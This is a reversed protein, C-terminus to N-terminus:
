DEKKGSKTEADKADTGEEAPVEEVTAETMLSRAQDAWNEREIRGKFSLVEDVNAIDEDTWNAVQEFKTVGLKNLKKVALFSASVFRM